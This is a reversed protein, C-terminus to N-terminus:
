GVNRYTSSYAPQRQQQQQKTVVKTTGVPSQIVEETIVTTQAYKKGLNSYGGSSVGAYSDYSNMEGGYSQSLTFNIFLFIITFIFIRGMDHAFQIARIESM